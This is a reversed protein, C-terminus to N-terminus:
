NAIAISATAARHKPATQIASSWAYELHDLLAVKPAIGKSPKSSTEDAHGISKMLLRHSSRLARLSPRFGDVLAALACDHALLLDNPSNSTLLIASIRYLDEPSAAKGERYVRRTESLIAPTTSAGGSRSTAKAYLREVLGVELDDMLVARRGQVLSGFSTVVILLSLTLLWNRM